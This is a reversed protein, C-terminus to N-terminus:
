KQLIGPAAQEIIAVVRAAGSPASTAPGAKAAPPFLMWVLNPFAVPRGIIWGDQITVPWNV